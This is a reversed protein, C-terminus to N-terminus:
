PKVAMFFVVVAILTISIGAVLLLRRYVADFEDSFAVDEGQSAAIDREAFEALKAETPSFFVPGALFLYVAIPLGVQVFLEGFDYGGDETITMYLGSLIILGVAPGIVTKGIRDQTALLFPLSRPYRHRAASWLIPYSFVLGLGAVTAIVHAFVVISYFTIDAAIM